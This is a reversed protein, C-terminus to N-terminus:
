SQSAQTDAPPSDLKDHIAQAREMLRETKAAQGKQYPMWECYRGGEPAIGGDQLLEVSVVFHNRGNHDIVMLNVLGSSWVYAVIAALPQDNDYADIHMQDKSKHYWVIRGITPTIM